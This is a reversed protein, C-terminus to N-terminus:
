ITSYLWYTGYCTNKKKVLIKIIKFNVKNSELKVADCKTKKMILSANKLAKKTTSYTGKPM